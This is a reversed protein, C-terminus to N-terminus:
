YPQSFWRGIKPETAEAHKKYGYATDSNEELDIDTVGSKLKSNGGSIISEPNFSNFKSDFLDKYSSSGADYSEQYPDGLSFGYEFDQEFMIM